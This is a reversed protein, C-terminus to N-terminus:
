ITEGYLVPPLADQAVGNGFPDSSKPIFEGVLSPIQAKQNIEPRIDVLVVLKVVEERSKSFGLIGQGSIIEPDKVADQGIAGGIRLTDPQPLAYARVSDVVTRTIPPIGKPGYRLIKYRIGTKDFEPIYGQAIVHGFIQN